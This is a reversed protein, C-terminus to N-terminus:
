AVDQVLYVIREAREELRLTVRRDEAFGLRRYLAEARPNEESAGIEITHMGQDRALRMLDLIIATGIGKGRYDERVVLNSIEGRYRWRMLHGFGVVEDGVCAVVGWCRTSYRFTQVVRAEVIGRDLDPWCTDGLPAADAKEVPRLTLTALRNM